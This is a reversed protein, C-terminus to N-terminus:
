YLRFLRRIGWSTDQLLGRTGDFVTTRYIIINEGSECDIKIPNIRQHPRIDHFRCARAYLREIRKGYRGGLVGERYKIYLEIKYWCRIIVTHSISLVLEPSLMDNEILLGIKNLTNIVREVKNVSELDLRSFDAERKFKTYVYRREDSTETLEDMFRSVAELQFTRRILKLNIVAIPVGILVIATGLGTCLLTWSEKSISALWDIM